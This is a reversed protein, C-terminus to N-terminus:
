CRHARTHARLKMRADATALRIERVMRLVLEFDEHSLAGMDDNMRLIAESLRQVLSAYTQFLITKERCFVKRLTKKKLNIQVLREEVDEISQSINCAWWHTLCFDCHTLHEWESADPFTVFHHPNRSYNWLFSLPIHEVKDRM